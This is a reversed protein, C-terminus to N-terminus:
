FTCMYVGDASHLRDVHHHMPHLTSSNKQANLRICALWHAPSFHRSCCSLFSLVKPSVAGLAGSPRVAHLSSSCGCERPMCPSNPLPPTHHLDEYRLYTYQQAARIGWGGERSVTTMTLSKLHFAWEWGAGWHYSWSRILIAARRLRGSPPWKALRPSSARM